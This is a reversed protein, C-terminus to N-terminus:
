VIGLQSGVDMRRKLAVGIAGCYEKSGFVAAESKAEQLATALLGRIKDLLAEDDVMLLWMRLDNVRGLKDQIRKCAASGENECLFLFDLQYRYRKCKKRVSHLADFDVEDEKALKVYRRSTKLMGSIVVELADGRFRLFKNQHPKLTDMIVTYSRAAIRELALGDLKSLLQERYDQKQGEFAAAHSPAFGSFEEIDRLQSGISLASKLEMRLSEDFGFGVTKKLLADISLIRRLAVRFDHLADNDYESLLNKRNKKLAQLLSVIYRAYRWIQSKGAHAMSIDGAM